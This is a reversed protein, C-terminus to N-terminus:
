LIWTIDSFNNTSKCHHFSSLGEALVDPNNVRESGVLFEGELLQALLPHGVSNGVAVGQLARREVAVAVGDEGHEADDNLAVLLGVFVVDAIFVRQAVAGNLPPEEGREGHVAHEAVACGDLFALFDFCYRLNLFLNM